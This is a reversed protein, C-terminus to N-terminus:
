CRIELLGQPRSNFQKVLNLQETIALNSSDFQNFVEPDSMFIKKFKKDKIPAIIGTKIDLLICDLGSKAVAYGILGFGAQVAAQEGLGVYHDVWRRLLM